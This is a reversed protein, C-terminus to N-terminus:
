PHRPTPMSRWSAATVRSRSRASLLEAIRVAIPL